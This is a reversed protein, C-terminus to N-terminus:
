EFSQTPRSDWEGKPQRNFQDFSVPRSIVKRLEPRVATSDAAM